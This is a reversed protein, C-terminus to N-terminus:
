RRWRARRAPAATQALTQELAAQLREQEARLREQEARATALQERLFSEVTEAKAARVSAAETERRAADLRGIFQEVDAMPLLGSGPAATAPAAKKRVGVSARVQGVEVLKQPGNPGETERTGIRGERYARRLAAVSVGTQAAAAKLTVWTGTAGDGVTDTVPGAQPQAPPAATVIDGGRARLPERRRAASVFRWGTTWWTIGKVSWGFAKTSSSTGDSM